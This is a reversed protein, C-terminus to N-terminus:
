PKKRTIHLFIMVNQSPNNQIKSHKQKNECNLEALRQARFDKIDGSHKKTKKKKM